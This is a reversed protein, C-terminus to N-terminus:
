SDAAAGSAMETASSGGSRRLHTALEDAVVSPDAADVSVLDVKLSEADALVTPDARGSYLLVARVPGGLTTQALKRYGDVQALRGFHLPAASEFRFEIVYYRGQPDRAVLDPRTTGGLRAHDDLTWGLPELRVRLEHDVHQELASKVRGM